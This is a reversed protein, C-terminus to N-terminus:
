GFKSCCMSEANECCNRSNGIKRKESDGICKRNHSWLVKYKQPSPRPSLPFSREFFKVASSMKFNNPPQAPGRGVIKLTDAVLFHNSLEEFVFSFLHFAFFALPFGLGELWITPLIGTWGSKLHSRGALFSRPFPKRLCNWLLAWRLTTQPMEM